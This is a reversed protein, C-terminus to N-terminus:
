SNIEYTKTRKVFHNIMLGQIILAYRVIFGNVKLIFYNLSLTPLLFNHHHIFGSGNKPTISLGTNKQTLGLLFFNNASSLSCNNHKRSNLIVRDEIVFMIILLMFKYVGSFCLFGCNATAFGSSCKTSRVCSTQFVLM